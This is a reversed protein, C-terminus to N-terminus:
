RRGRGKHRSKLKLRIPVGVFGWAERFGRILYRAYSEPVDKPYNTWVAFVPPSVSVQAGYSFRLPSGRKQPPNVAETLARLVDIVANTSVRKNREEGVNWALDLARHVRQGVLASVFVIPVDALFPVRKRLSKEMEIATHTDKEILDWKNVALVLGCGRDWALRAIRFDQNSVGEDADVIVICVDASDIARLTRLTSYYELGDTIRSKRRLGATDVFIYRKGEREFPTDVADRTTGAQESVVLRETGLVKNIFSSKGVNPRGIVALRLADPAEEAAAEEPLLEVIRDLLDGSGKGSAASLAHPEGLGLAYFEMHETADPLNDVKNVVLLTPIGRKRLLEAIHQDLPHIGEKGDVMFVIVTAEEMAALAQRRIAADMEGAADELIGGTDVVYFRRGTWEGEGFHVDRTVGPQSDVIARRGGVVRNFFTSKGVNPRGVIAV